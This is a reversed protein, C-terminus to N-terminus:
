LWIVDSRTLMVTNFQIKNTVINNSM